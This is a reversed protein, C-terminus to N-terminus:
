LAVDFTSLTITMRRQLTVGALAWSPARSGSSSLGSANPDFIQASVAIAGLLVFRGDGLSAPDREHSYRILV